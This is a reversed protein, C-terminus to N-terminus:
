YGAFDHLDWQAGATAVLCPCACMAKFCPAALPTGDGRQM